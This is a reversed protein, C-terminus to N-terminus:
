AQRQEARLREGSRVSEECVVVLGALLSLALAGSAAAALRHPGPAGHWAASARRALTAAGSTIRAPLAALAPRM